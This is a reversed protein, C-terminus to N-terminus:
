KKDLEDAAAKLLKKYDDFTLREIAEELTFWGAEKIESEQLEFDTREVEGLYLTTVKDVEEGNRMFSYRVAFSVSTDVSVPVLGTEEEMERVATEKSGEGREPRGKPFTWLTDGGSGYQHILFFTFGGPGKHYPIVGYSRELM